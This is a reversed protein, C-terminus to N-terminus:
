GAAHRVESEGDTILWDLALLDNASLAIYDGAKELDELTIPDGLLEIESSLFEEAIENFKARNEPTVEWVETPNGHDDLRKAGYEMILKTLWERLPEYEKQAGAFIRKLKYALKIHKAPLDTMALKTLAPYGINLQKLTVRM